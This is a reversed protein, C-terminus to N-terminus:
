LKARAEFRGYLWDGKGNSNLRASTYDRCGDTSCYRERLAQIVLKGDQIFANRGHDTYYQLENNGGGHGNIEFNWKSADIGPGNFEDSWVLAWGPKPGGGDSDMGRRWKQNNQGNGGDANSWESVDLCKSAHKSRIEYQNNGKDVFYFCQSDANAYIGQQVNAGNATSASQVEAPKSSHINLAALLALLLLHIWQNAKSPVM